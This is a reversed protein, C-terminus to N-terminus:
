GNSALAEAGGVIELIEKTIAAQRTRNYILKLDKLLEKANDTAKDMATMRAGHESANSELLAKYFQIKLTKPILEAFIEKESPEFIYNTTSAKQSENKVEVIPLFQETRIIQTAVNKFENYVLEVRDFRRALFGDMAFEAVRRAQNFNLSSFLTAYESNLPYKRRGFFDNGKKGITLLQVNGAAAQSAYKGTLLSNVAKTVNANFAGALGRDSTIVVLLVKNPEREEAYPNSAEDELQSSINQLITQLRQTYPRMQIIADQARRLKAAAVMKMAKTIQQTSNISQIRLRVEKLSPM